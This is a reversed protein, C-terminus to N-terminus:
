ERRLATMPDVAAARRAPFYSALIAAAALFACVVCFTIRDTPKIGYPFTTLVRTVFLAGALGMTMGFVTMRLGSGMVMRLVDSQEAGLAMRLGIEQTRQAVSYSMLGYIGVGAIILALSAFAGLVM